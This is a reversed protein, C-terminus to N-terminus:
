IDESFTSGRMKQQKLIPKFFQTFPPELRWEYTAGQAEGSKILAATFIV